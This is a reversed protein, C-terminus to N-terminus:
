NIRVSAGARRPTLSRQCAGSRTNSDGGPVLCRRTRTDRPLNGGHRIAHAYGGQDHRAAGEVPGGVGEGQGATLRDHPRAHVGADLDHEAVDLGEVRADDEAGRAQRDLVGAARGAGEDVALLHLAAVRELVPVADAEARGAGLATGLEEDEQGAGGAPRRRRESGVGGRREEVRLQRSRGEPLLRGQREGGFPLGGGACSNSRDDSVTNSAPDTTTSPSTEPGGSSAASTAGVSSSPSASKAVGNGGAACRSGDRGAGGGGGGDNVGGGGRRRRRRRGGGRAGEVARAAAARAPSASRGEAGPEAARARGCPLASAPTGSPAARSGPPAGSRAQRENRTGAAAARVWAPPGRWRSPSPDGSPSAGGTRRAAM